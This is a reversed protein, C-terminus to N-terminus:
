VGKRGTTLRWYKELRTRPTPAFAGADIAEMALTMAEVATLSDTETVFEILQRRGAVLARGNARRVRAHWKGPEQEFANITFKEYEM